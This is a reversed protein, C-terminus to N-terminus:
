KCVVTCRTTIQPYGRAQTRLGTVLVNANKVSVDYRLIKSVGFPCVKKVEESTLFNEVEIYRNLEASPYMTDIVEVVKTIEALASQHLAFIFLLTAYKM